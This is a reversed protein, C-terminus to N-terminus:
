EDYEVADSPVWYASVNFDNDLIKIATAKIAGTPLEVHESKVYSSCHSEINKLDIFEDMTGKKMINCNFQENMYKIADDGQGAEILDRTKNFIQATKTIRIIKEHEHRDFLELKNNQLVLYTETSGISQIFDQRYPGWFVYLDSNVANAKISVTDWKLLDPGSHHFIENLKLDRTLFIKQTEKMIYMAHGKNAYKLNNFETPVFPVGCRNCYIISNINENYPNPGGVRFHVGVNIPEISYKFHEIIKGGECLPCNKGTKRIFENMQKM